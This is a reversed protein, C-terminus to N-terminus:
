EINQVQERLQDIVTKLELGTATLTRDSAKSCLTNAERNVRPSSISSAAWRMARRWCCARRRSMRPAASSGVDARTALLMAEQHLRDRDFSAGDGVLRAM